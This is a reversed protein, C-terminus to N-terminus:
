DSEETIEEIIDIITSNFVHDKLINREEVAMVIIEKYCKECLDFNKFKGDYNGSADVGQDYVFSYTQIFKNDNESYSKCVDCHKINM